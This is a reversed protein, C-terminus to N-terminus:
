LVDNIALRENKYSLTRVRYGLSIRARSSFGNQECARRLATVMHEVEGDLGSSIGTDSMDTEAKILFPLSM